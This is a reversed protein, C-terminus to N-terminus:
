LIRLIDSYLALGMLGLLVVMGLQQGIIQINESVPRRTVSEILYYLLHGGDLLPIPLLNLVALSVSVLALFELFRATGLRASEGAYHAISIPGSLNLPSAQLTIMKGLFKLTTASMEITRTLAGGVAEFPGYREIGWPVPELDDPVVVEAGIRGIEGRRGEVRAPTLTLAVESGARLVTVDLAREPNARVLDVWDNWDDVRAGNAVAVRDGARMGARDAPDGPVVREIVPEIHPRMPAVGLEALFDGQGIDDITLSRFDLVVHRESGNDSRAVVNIAAGDLIAGLSKRFVGDWTSSPANEVEVIEMGRELGARAAISGPEVEGIIPRPGSVGIILTLWYAVVALLFNALPGAVVVASRTLLPKNNFARDREAPAVEGEREDLMRVYGGLPIAAVVYETEGRRRQWLPRGFGLSFRLVKVDLRRAVWFHGYEHFAVLIGLAVIFAVLTQLLDM